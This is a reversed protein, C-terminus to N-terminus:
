LALVTELYQDLIVRLKPSKVEVLAQRIIATIDDKYSLRVYEVKDREAQDSPVGAPTLYVLCRCTYHGQASDLHRRYRHLQTDQDKAGVKNEIIVQTKALPSWIKIDLNGHETKQEEQVSWNQHEDIKPLGVFRARTLRDFLLRLFLCGQGHTGRPDLFNALMPSHTIVEKRALRLVRFVNFDRAEFAAKEQAAAFKPELERRLRNIGDAIVSLSAPHEKAAKMEAFAQLFAGLADISFQKRPISM